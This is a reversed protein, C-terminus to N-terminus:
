SILRALKVTFESLQQAATVLKEIDQLASTDKAAKDSLKTTLDALLPVNAAVIIAAGAGGTPIASMGQITTVLSETKAKYESIKSEDSVNGSMYSVHDEREIILKQAKELLPQAINNINVKMTELALTKTNIFETQLLAREDEPITGFDEVEQLTDKLAILEDIYSGVQQIAPHINDNYENILYKAKDNLEM